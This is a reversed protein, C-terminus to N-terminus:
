GVYASASNQMSTAETQMAQLYAQMQATHEAATSTAAAGLYDQAYQQGTALMMVNMWAGLNANNTSFNTFAQPALTFLQEVLNPTTYVIQLMTAPIIKQAQLYAIVAKNSALNATQATAASTAQPTVQGALMEFLMGAQLLLGKVNNYATQEGSDDIGQLDDQLLQAFSIPTVQGTDASTYVVGKVKAQQYIQINQLANKYYTQQILSTVLSAQQTNKLLQYKTQAAIFYKAAQAYPYQTFSPVLPDPKAYALCSNGAHLFLQAMTTNFTAIQAAETKPDLMAAWNAYAENIQFLLTQYNPASPDSILCEQMWDILTEYISLFLTTIVTAQSNQTMKSAYAFASQDPAYLLAQARTIEQNIQNLTDSFGEPYTLFKAKQIDTLASQMLAQANNFHGYAEVVYANVLVMLVNNAAVTSNGPVYTVGGLDFAQTGPAFLAYSSQLFTAATAMSACLPTVPSLQINNCVISQITAIDKLTISQVTVGSFNNVSANAQKIAPQVYPQAIPNINPQLKLTYDVFCDNFAIGQQQLLQSVINARLVALIDAQQTASIKTFATGVPISALSAPVASAGFTAMSIEEIQYATAIFAEPINQLANWSQTGKTQVSAALSAASVLTHVTMMAQYVSAAQQSAVQDLYLNQYASYAQEYLTTATAFDFKQTAAEAQSVLSTAQKQAAAIQGSTAPQQPPTITAKGAQSTAEQLTNVLGASQLITAVFLQWTANVKLLDPFYPIYASIIPKKSAPYLNDMTQAYTMALAIPNSGTASFAGQMAQCLLALYQTIQATAQIGAISVLDDQTLIVPSVTLMNHSLLQLLQNISYAQLNKAALQNVFNNSQQLMAALNSFALQVQGATASGTVGGILFQAITPATYVGQASQDNMYVLWLQGLSRIVLDLDDLLQMQDSCQTQGTSNKASEFGQLAQSFSGYASLLAQYNAAIQKAVNETQTVDLLISNRSNKLQAQAAAFQESVVGYLKAQQQVDSVQQRMASAQATNGAAQYVTALAGYYTPLQQYGSAIASFDSAGFNMGSKVKLIAANYLKIMMSTLETPVDSGKPVGQVVMGKTYTKMALEYADLCSALTADDLTLASANHQVINFCIQVVSDKFQQYFYTVVQKQQNAPFYKSLRVVEAEYKTFQTSLDQLDKQYSINSTMKSQIVIGYGNIYSIYPAIINKYVTFAMSGQDLNGSGNSSASAGISLLSALATEYQELVASLTLSQSTRVHTSGLLALLLIKKKM